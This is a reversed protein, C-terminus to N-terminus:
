LRLERLSSALLPAVTLLAFAPLICLVLPFLLLVPLRRAREEARRLQRRRADDALRGLPGGLPAGYRESAALAAALPRVPEGAVAPLQDLADSLREDRGPAVLAALHAGLEGPFRRAVAELALPVTLGAGVALAFLDIVDGLEAEILQLHHGARRRRRWMALGLLSVFAAIGLLPGAVLAFAFAAFAILALPALM